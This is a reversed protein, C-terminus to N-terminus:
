GGRSPLPTFYCLSGAQISGGVSKSKEDLCASITPGSLFALWGYDVSSVPQFGISSQEGSQRALYPFGGALAEAYGGRSPLPTFYCLSGAQISGGVSKSKEDLCASITPGSLFALWGYDVSSVPQFGISSQEGSQCALYPFGGALAEAYAAVPLPTFYYLSGGHISDGVPKMNMISSYVVHTYQTVLHLIEEIGFGIELNITAVKGM